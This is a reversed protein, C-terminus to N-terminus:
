QKVERKKKIEHVNSVEKEMIVKREVPGDEADQGGAGELM